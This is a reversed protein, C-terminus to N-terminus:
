FPADELDALQATVQAKTVASKAPKTARARAAIADLSPKSKAAKKAPAKPAAKAKPAAETENHKDQYAELAERVLKNGNDFNIKLLFAVAELKTMPHTLEILDIDSSGTKALVKVRMQDNAFRAKFAGARKSVGAFKFTKSM